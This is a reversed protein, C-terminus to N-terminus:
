MKGKNAISKEVVRVNEEGLFETIIGLTRGDASISRSRDMRKVAKEAKLYVVLEDNGDSSKLLNLLTEIKADYEAKDAFQLWVESPISDFAYASEMIVKANKDEEANVHGKVFVKAEDTLIQQYKEYDRPFCVVEVTGVLDELTLFAMVKNTKTYKITRGVIMGGVVTSEGDNVKVENLEEDLIFDSTKNTINKEWKAQYEELPHGSIYIGLVDKEFALYTAKDYEAADPIDTKFSQKEEEGVIDFLSMQGELTNKKDLTVRDAMIPYVMMAQKRNIGLSLFAGAKIFNEIARKNVLGNGCRTIFDELSKFPGYKERNECIGEIVPRGIAKIASLSYRIKGDYVSFDGVGLNIDPPMIEIGMRKCTLIYEAIKDTNGLVSTMLAAMFEVPYYYKLYATQYAVVAYGTAHAKNFAYEAFSVMADFIENAKDEPVGRKVAGDVKLEENGYVFNQREALMVDHKKKSMARRVLDSRGWSYGALDRVIQMVQEQYVICGYTPKLIPELEPSIYKVAAPDSKGAIYNPIFDMPGPRYLAIGAIIDDFSQPKLEKMFNTMGQSELQFVGETKGQSLMDFINKDDFTLSNLDIDIGRTKKVNKITGEIVSLTRLGLFDMKLLGLEELTPAEYETMVPGDSATRSLPVYEDVPRNCIVVGAAHMSTNRPLGELKMAMDILKHITEDSMYMSMLEPNIRMADNITMKAANPVAKAISDVFAYPLDMARGVDRIANKAAMTGFTVIQAVADEGYLEKVYDIVDQRRTDVFDVDIDPMSVREPNLFREFVLDYKLPDIETIELVYAVISGAASGRGPGVTIGHSKSYHIFDWVILFYDVFGMEKITKLEFELQKQAKELIDESYRARLGKYCLEELYEESSKGDPVHYKPLKRSKFDIEVNCRMAIAHTNELAELAYPFLEKMEDESKIYYQGGEYRMRDEDTVKKGTQVCLLIDHAEADDANTYHVDNTCVLPINLEKSMRILQQNVERQEPIGHDQLELFFNGEGFISLYEKATKCAEEYGDRLITKPIQGALCASLAILGEHYEKLVEMDVRPRYYFGETFGKSVIKILNEYGKNNEALLVLHFYRDDGAGAERDFRSGPAVYVESGLIPHIGEAKAAKYFAICGYMVGHDTIAVSDMNLEKVRKICEKVKNSGDLLSYETHVHLHTFAM